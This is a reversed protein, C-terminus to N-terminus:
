IMDYIPSNLMSLTAMRPDEHFSFINYMKNLMICSKSMRTTIKDMQRQLHMLFDILPIYEDVVQHEGGKGSVKSMSM